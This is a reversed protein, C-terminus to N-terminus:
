LLTHKHKCSVKVRAYITLLVNGCPLLLIKLLLRKFGSKDSCVVITISGTILILSLEQLFLDVLRSLKCDNLVSSLDNTFM